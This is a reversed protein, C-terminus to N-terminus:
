ECASEAGPQVPVHVHDTTLPETPEPRLRLVAPTIVPVGFLPVNPVGMM